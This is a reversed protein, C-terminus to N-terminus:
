PALNDVVKKIFNYIGVIKSHAKFYDQHRIARNDFFDKLENYRYQKAAKSTVITDYIYLLTIINYTVSYNLNKGRTNSNINTLSKVYNSIESDIQKGNELPDFLRNILCNSHAAANRIDRVSNMFKNNIIEEGYRQEYFACLYTLDGFSIVEVFVWAPFYPYYKEILNKCYESSKHSRIKKLIYSNNEASVFRRIIDYGDEDPNNEIAQLLKVKLYHEIDLCMEMILYRLHMDITSLEKLYAFELNMYQGNKKSGDQYKPYNSRYSALKMYYNSESLFKKAEDESVINFKIGKEKMHDIMEDITLLPKM